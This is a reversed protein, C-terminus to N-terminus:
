INWTGFYVLNSFPGHINHVYLHFFVLSETMWPHNIFIPSCLSFKGGDM